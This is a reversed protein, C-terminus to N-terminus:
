NSLVRDVRRKADMMAEVESQTVAEFICRGLIPLDPTAPSVSVLLFGNKRELDVIYGRYRTAQRM